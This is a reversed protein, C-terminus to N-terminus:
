QERSSFGYSFFSESARPPIRSYSERSNHSSITCGRRVEAHGTSTLLVENHSAHKCFANLTYFLYDCHVILSINSSKNANVLTKM